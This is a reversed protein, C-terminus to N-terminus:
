LVRSMDAADTTRSWEGGGSRETANRERALSVLLERLIDNQTIKSYPNGGLIAEMPRGLNQVANKMREM